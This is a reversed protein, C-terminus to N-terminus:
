RKNKLSAINNKFQTLKEYYEKSSINKQMWSISYDFDNFNVVPTFQYYLANQEDLTDNYTLKLYLNISSEINGLSRYVIIKKIKRSFTIEVKQDKSLSGISITDRIYYLDTGNLLEEFNKLQEFNLFPFNEIHIERAINESINSLNVSYESWKKLNFQFLKENVNHINIQNLNYNFEEFNFLFNPKFTGILQKKLLENDEKALQFSKENKNLAKNTQFLAFISTILVGTQVIVGLIEIIQNLNLYQKLLIFM